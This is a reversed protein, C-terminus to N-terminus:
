ETFNMSEVIDKFATELKEKKDTQKITLVTINKHNYSEVEGFFDKMTKAKGNADITIRINNYTSLATDDTISFNPAFLTKKYIENAELEEITGNLFEEPSIINPTWMIILFELNNTLNECIVKFLQGELEIYDTIKWKNEYNFKIGNKNFTNLVVIAAKKEVINVNSKIEKEKSSTPRISRLTTEINKNLFYKIITPSAFALLIVLATIIATKSIRGDNLKKKLLFHIVFDSVVIPYIIKTTAIGVMYGSSFISLVLLYILGFGLPIIFTCLWVHAFKKPTIIWLSFLTIGITVLWEIM